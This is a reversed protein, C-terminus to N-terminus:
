RIAGNTFVHYCCWRPRLIDKYSLHVINQISYIYSLEM